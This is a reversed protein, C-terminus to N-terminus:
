HTSAVDCPCTATQELYLMGAQWSRSHGSKPLAQLDMRASSDM